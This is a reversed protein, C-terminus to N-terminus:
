LIMALPPTAKQLKSVSSFCGEDSVPLYAKPDAELRDMPQMEMSNADAFETPDGPPADDVAQGHAGVSFLVAIASWTLGAKM